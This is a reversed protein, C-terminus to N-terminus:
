SSLQAEAEALVVVIDRGFRVDCPHYPQGSNASAILESEAVRLSQEPDAPTAPM